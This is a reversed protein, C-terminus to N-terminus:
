QEEMVCGVHRALWETCLVPREFKQWFRLVQLMKPTALYAHFSLVDSLQAAAIDIPHAFYECAPQDLDQSIHWAGVTLPQLPDEGRAWAFILPLLELAFCELKEDFQTEELGTAFTGRNGPENYLDWIAIRSDTRFHRVIDRVYRELDPWMDRNCVIERGPSAAAQSNHKGPEPAKQPGLFPEDGSFGCDDMLTLMVKINHRQAINLFQDIRALLGDRDHQWVIFPLNIRLQNYGIEQAWGLEQEITEADFTERQWLETWNVASRPLYNFGCIWGQNNHWEAAQQKSWQTRM